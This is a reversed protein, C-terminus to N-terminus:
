FNKLSILQPLFKLVAIEQKRHMLLTLNLRFIPHITSPYLPTLDICCGCTAKAKSFSIIIEIANMKQM